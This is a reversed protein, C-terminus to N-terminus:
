EAPVPIGIWTGPTGGAVCCWAFVGGPTPATNFVIEGQAHEGQAPAASGVAVVRTVSHDAQDALSLVPANFMYPVVGERGARTWNAPASDQTTARLFTGGSIGAGGYSRHVLAYEGRAVVEHIRGSPLHSSEVTRVFGEGADGGLIHSAGHEGRRVSSQVMGHVRMAGSGTRHYIGPGYFEDGNAGIMGDSATASPGIYYHGQGGECYVGHHTSGGGALVGSGGSVYAGGRVWQPVNHAPGGPEKFIWVGDNTGPETSAAAAEQGLHVVWKGDRKSAAHRHYVIATTPHLGSDLQGNSASHGAFLHVGLFSEDRYGYEGNYVANPNIVTVANGDAGGFYFGHRGNHISSCDSLKNQNTSGLPHTNADLSAALHFGDRAFGRAECRLVECRARLRFGDGRDADRDGGTRTDGGGGILALGEIISGEASGNGGTDTDAQWKTGYTNHRNVIIGSTGPPFFLKTAEGANAGTGCGLLRVTHKLNIARSVRYRGPPFFLTGSPHFANEEGTQFPSIAALHELAAMIAAYDDAVGDGVAGFEKVSWVGAAGDPAKAAGMKGPATKQVEPVAGGAAVAIGAPVGVLSLGAMARILDRRTNNDTESM